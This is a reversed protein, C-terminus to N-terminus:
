ISAKDAPNVVSADVSYPPAPTGDPQRALQLKAIQIMAGPRVDDQTQGFAGMGVMFEFGVSWVGQHLDQKKILLETLEKLDFSFQTPEAM